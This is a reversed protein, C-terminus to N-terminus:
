FGKKIIFEIVSKKKSKDYNGMGFEVINSSNLGNKILINKIIKARKQSMAINKVEDKFEKCYVIVDVKVDENMDIKQSLQLLKQKAIKSLSVTGKQFVIDKNIIRDWKEKSYNNNDQLKVSMYNRIKQKSKTSDGFVIINEGRIKNILLIKKIVYARKTSLQYNKDSNQFDNSHISIEVVTDRNFTKLQSIFERMVDDSKQTLIISNNQFNVYNFIISKGKKLRNLNLDKKNKVIKQMFKQRSSLPVDLYDNMFKKNCGSNSVSLTLSNPCIDKKDDVSDRDMDYDLPLSEDKYNKFNSTEFKSKYDLNSPTKYDLKEYLIGMSYLLKYKFLLKRFETKILKVRAQYFDNKANLLDIITRKGLQFEETFSDLVKQTLDKNNAFYRLQEDILRYANWTLELGNVADRRLANSQQNEFHILKLHKAKNHMDRGGNYLNYYLNLMIGYKDENGEYGSNYDWERMLELNIKPQFQKKSIEYDYRQTQVKFEASKLVPHNEYMINLGNKLNIPLEYRFIPIKLNKGEVFRGILTQFNYISNKYINQQLILNSKAISLRSASKDLDSRKGSGANQRITLDDFTKRHIEVNEKALNLLKLNQLINLYVEVTHFTVKNVQELYSYFAGDLKAKMRNRENITGFGNYLNQKLIIRQKKIDANDWAYKTSSNKVREKGITAEYDLSPLYGSKSGKYEENVSNFYSYKELVKPNTHTVEEIADNLSLAYISTACLIIAIKKKM